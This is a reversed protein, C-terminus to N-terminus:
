SENHCKLAIQESIIKVWVSSILNRDDPNDSMGCTLIVFMCSGQGQTDRYHEPLDQIWKSIHTNETVQMSNYYNALVTMSPSLSFLKFLLIEIAVYSISQKRRLGSCQKHRADRCLSVSAM